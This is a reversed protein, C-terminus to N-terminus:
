PKSFSKVYQVIAQIQAESLVPGWLAMNPSGGYKAAGNKVVEVLDEPEGTKGDGSPDFKFEGSTFDRPKPDLAAAAPGDGKGQLGHCTVCFTEYLAKGDAAAAPPAAPASAPAPTEPTAPAAQAAPIPTASPAVPKTPPTSAPDSREDSCAATIALLAAAFLPWV